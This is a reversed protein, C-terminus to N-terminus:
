WALPYDSLAIEYAPMTKLQECIFWMQVIDPFFRNM